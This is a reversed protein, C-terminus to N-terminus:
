TFLCARAQQFKYHSATHIYFTFNLKIKKLANKERKFCEEIKSQSCPKTNKKKKFIDTGQSLTKHKIVKMIKLVLPGCIQM